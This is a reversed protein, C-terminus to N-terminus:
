SESSTSSMNTASIWRLMRDLSSFAGLKVLSHLEELREDDMPYFVDRRLTKINYPDIEDMALVIEGLMIARPYPHVIDRYPGHLQFTAIFTLAMDRDAMIRPSMYPGWRGWKDSSEM